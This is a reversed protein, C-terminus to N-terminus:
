ELYGKNFIPQFFWDSFKAVTNRFKM